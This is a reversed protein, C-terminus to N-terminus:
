IRRSSSTRTRGEGSSGYGHLLLVLPRPESRDADQPILLTAPREDGGIAIRSPGDPSALAREGGEPQKESEEDKDAPKTATAKATPAPTTTPTVSVTPTPSPPEQQPADDDCGALLCCVFAGALFTAFPRM